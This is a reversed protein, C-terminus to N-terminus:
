EEEKELMKKALPCQTDHCGQCKKRDMSKNGHHLYLFGALAFVGLGALVAISLLLYGVQSM